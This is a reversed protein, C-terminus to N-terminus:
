KKQKPNTHTHTTLGRGNFYFYNLNETHRYNATTAKATTKKQKYISKKKANRKIIFQMANKKTKM